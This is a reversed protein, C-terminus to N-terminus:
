EKEISGYYFPQFPYLELTFVSNVIMPDSELWARAEPEDAASLIIMGKDAYRAGLLIKKEARLRQLNASHEKFHAQEHAPKHKQWTPGLSFIAVFLTKKQPSKEVPHQSPQDSAMTAAPLPKGLPAKISAASDAQQAISTLPSFAFVAVSVLLLNKMM